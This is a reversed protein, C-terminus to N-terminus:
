NRKPLDVRADRLKRELVPIGAATNGAKCQSIANEVEPSPPTRSTAPNPLYTQYRQILANCYDGDSVQAFATAPLLVAASALLCPLKM